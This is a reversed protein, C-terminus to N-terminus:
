VLTTRENEVPLQLHSQPSLRYIRQGEQDNDDKM